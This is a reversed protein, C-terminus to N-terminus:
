VTRHAELLMRNYLMIKLVLPSEIPFIAISDMPQGHSWPGDV